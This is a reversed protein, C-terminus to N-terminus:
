SKHYMWTIEHKNYQMHQMFSHPIEAFQHITNWDTEGQMKITCIMNTANGEAIWKQVWKLLRDPYCIVDSFIWDFSGIEKPELTFADHTKFEVLPHKMLSPHLESRDVAFVSCGLEKLVWTWGGPCAGADFCREGTTPLVGFRHQFRLLAEQFKLYARSPPNEHDEILEINGAPFPSSSQPFVLATNADLLTYMGVNAQPVQYPFPKLKTNIYPLKEQILSSRRFQTFSYFFWNRQIDRMAQSAESIAKFELRFVEACITKAWAPHALQTENPYYLLNGYEKPETTYGFRSALEEKLQKIFTSQTETAKAKDTTDFALYAFGSLKQLSM